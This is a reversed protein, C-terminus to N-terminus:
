VPATYDWPVPADTMVFELLAPPTLLDAHRAFPAALRVGNLAISSVFANGPASANRALVRLGGASINAFAPASLAYWPTGALPYLGLLAWVTWAAM